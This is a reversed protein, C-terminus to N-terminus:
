VSMPQTQHNYFGTKDSALVVILLIVDIVISILGGVMFMTGFFSNMVAGTVCQTLAWVLCLSLSLYVLRLANSTFQIMKIGSYLYIGQIFLGIIGFILAFGGFWEPLEMMAEINDLFEEADHDNAKANELIDAIFEQQFSLVKPMVTIQATGILGLIGFIIMLVGIVTVWTPRQIKSM